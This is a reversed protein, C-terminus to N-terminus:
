LGNNEKRKFYQEINTKPKIMKLDTERQLQLKDMSVNGVKDPIYDESPTEISYNDNEYVLVKLPCVNLCNPFKFEMSDM